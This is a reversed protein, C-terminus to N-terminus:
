LLARPTSRLSPRRTSSRAQCSVRSRESFLLQYRVPDQVCFDLIVRARLRLAQRPNQARRLDTMRALLDQNAAGFMADCIAHKSPVYAYLSQGCALGRVWTACRSRPWVMRTSWIGPRM